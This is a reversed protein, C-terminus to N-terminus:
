EKLSEQWNKIYDMRIQWEHEIRDMSWKKATSVVISDAWKEVEKMSSFKSGELYKSMKQEFYLDNKFNSRKDFVSQIGRVRSERAVAKIYNSSNKFGFSGNSFGFDPMTLRHFESEKFELIHSIEHYIHPPYLTMFVYDKSPYYGVPNGNKDMMINETYIFNNFQSVLNIAFGYAKKILLVIKQDMFNLIQLLIIM